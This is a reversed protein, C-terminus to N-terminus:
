DSLDGMSRGEGGVGPVLIVERNTKVFRLMTETALFTKEIYTAEYKHHSHWSVTSQTPIKVKLRGMGERPRLEPLVCTM